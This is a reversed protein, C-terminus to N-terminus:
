RMVKDYAEKPTMGYKVRQSGYVTTVEARWWYLTKSPDFGYDKLVGPGVKVRRLKPKPELMRACFIEDFVRNFAESFNQM